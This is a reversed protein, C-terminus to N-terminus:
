SLFVAFAVFPEFAGGFGCVGLVVGGRVVEGEEVFGAVAIVDELVFAVSGLEQGLGSVEAVCFGGVAKAIGVFVSFEGTGM